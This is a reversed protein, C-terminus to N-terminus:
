QEEHFKRNLRERENKVKLAYEEHVRELHDICEIQKNEKISLANNWEKVLCESYKKSEVKIVPLAESEDINGSLTILLKNSICKENSVKIANQCNLYKVGLCNLYADSSCYISVANREFDKIIEIDDAYLYSSFCCIIIKLLTKM